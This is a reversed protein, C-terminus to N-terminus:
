PYSAQTTKGYLGSREAVTRLTIWCRCNINNQPLTFGGPCMASDGDFTFFAEDIGVEVGHLYDHTDRVRGDMMTNWRKVLGLTGSAKGANVVGTNYDRVSETDIIRLLEDATGNQITEDARERFTKNAIELNVCIDDLGDKFPVIGVIKEADQWGYAYVLCLVYELYDCFRNRVEEKKRESEPLVMIRKAEERILNLEDWEFLDHRKAM